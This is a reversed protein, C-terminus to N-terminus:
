SLLTWLDEKEADLTIVTSIQDDILLSIESWSERIRRNEM